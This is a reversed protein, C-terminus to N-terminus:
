TLKLFLHLEHSLWVSSLCFGGAVMRGEMDSLYNIGAKSVAAERKNFTYINGGCDFLKEDAAQDMSL